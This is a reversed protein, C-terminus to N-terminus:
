ALWKKKFNKALQTLYWNIKHFIELDVISQTNSQWWRFINNYIFHPRKTQTNHNWKYICNIRKKHSVINTVIIDVDMKEISHLHSIHDNLQM